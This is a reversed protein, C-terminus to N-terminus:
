YVYYDVVGFKATPAKWHGQFAPPSETETGVVEHLLMWAADAADALPIELTSAYLM